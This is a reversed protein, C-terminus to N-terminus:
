LAAEAAAAAAAWLLRHHAVSDDKDVIIEILRARDNTCDALHEALEATTAPALYELGFMAATHRFGLDHETAFLTDMPADTKALPLYSFIGGGANNVVIITGTSGLRAVAAFGGLDHLTALDGLLAVMPGDSAADIGFATSVLGDIGNVGRNALIRLPRGDPRLFADLERVPMSSAALLTADAPLLQSLLGIIGGEFHDPADLCGGELADSAAGDVAKWRATWADREDSTAALDRVATGLVGCTAATRARVFLAGAHNPDERRGQEDVVVLRADRHRGMWQTLAKSTPMRGLRLIWDPKLAQAVADGRLFADYSTISAIGAPAPRRLGSLPDTLVPVGAARALFAIAAREEDQADLPGVVIVGRPQTRVLDAMEELAAGSPRFEAPAWPAFPRGDPRGHVAVPDAEILSAPVDGEITVASLPEDFHVDLHVPGATPGQAIEVMRCIRGRLWRLWDSEPRPLGIAGFRLVHDGYMSHQQTTQPAGIDRLEPPRDATILILPVGTEYAEIVAPYWHAAASGSTCVLAVPRRGARALGLAFFSACREDVHVHVNLDARADASIALPANRSGPSMCVDRVGARALEDFIATSALVNRNALPDFQRRRRAAAHGENRVLM